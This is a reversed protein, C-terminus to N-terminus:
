GLGISSRHVRVVQDGEDGGAGPLDVLQSYTMDRDWIAPLLVYELTNIGGVLPSTCTTSTMAAVLSAMTM